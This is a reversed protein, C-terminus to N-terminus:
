DILFYHVFPKYKEFLKPTLTEYRQFHDIYDAKKVIYANSYDEEDDGFIIRNMYESYTEKTKDFTLQKVSHTVEDIVYEPIKCRKAYNISKQLIERLNNETCDTDELLDHLLGITWLILGDLHGSSLKESIKAVNETHDSLYDPYQEAIQQKLYRRFLYDNEISMSKREILYILCGDFAAQFIFFGQM